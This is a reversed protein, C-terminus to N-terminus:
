EQSSTDGQAHCMRIQAIEEATFFHDTVEYICGDGQTENAQLFKIVGEPRLFYSEGADEQLVDAVATTLPFPKPFTYAPLHLDRRVSLMFVRERNQPVGFDKANLVAWYNDYGCANCM